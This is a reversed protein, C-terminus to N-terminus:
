YKVGTVFFSVNNTTSFIQITGSGDALITKTMSGRNDFSLDVSSGKKRVGFMDSGLNSKTMTIRVEKNAYNIGLVRDVWAGANSGTIATKEEIYPGSIYWTTANDINIYQLGTDLDTYKSYKKSVHNPTGNGHEIYFDGISKQVLNTTAM